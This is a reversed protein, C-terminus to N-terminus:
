HRQSEQGSPTLSLTQRGQSHFRVGWVDGGNLEASIESSMEKGEEWVGQASVVRAGQQDRPVCM